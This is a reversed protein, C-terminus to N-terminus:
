KQNEDDSTGSARCGNGLFKSALLARASEDSWQLRNPDGRMITKRARRIETKLPFHPVKRGYTETLVETALVLLVVFGKADAGRLVEATVLREGLLMPKAKKRQRNQFVPEKWRIVDAEIFGGTASVWETM